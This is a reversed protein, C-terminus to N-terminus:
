RSGRRTSAIGTSGATRTPSATSTPATSGPSRSVTGISRGTTTSRRNTCPDWRLRPAGPLRLSGPQRQAVRRPRRPGQESRDSRRAATGHRRRRDPRTTSQRRSRHTRVHPRRAALRPHRHGLSGLQQRGHDMRQQPLGVGVAADHVRANTEGYPPRYCAMRVNAESLVADTTSTLQSSIDASSLDRLHPHNWTHNGVYHGGVFRRTSPAKEVLSGIASSSSRRQSTTVPSCTSSPLRPRVRAVTSPSTRLRNRRPRPAQTM